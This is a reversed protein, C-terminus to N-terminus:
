DSEGATLNEEAERENRYTEVAKLWDDFFPNDALPTIPLPPQPAPVSQEILIAGNSLRAGIKARLANVAEAASAGHASLGLPGGAIAQFGGAVPEVLIPVTM